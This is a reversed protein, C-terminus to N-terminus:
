RRGGNGTLSQAFMRCPLKLAHPMRMCLFNGQQFIGLQSKHEKM